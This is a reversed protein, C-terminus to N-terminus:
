RDDYLDSLKDDIWRQEGISVEQEIAVMTQTGQSLDLHLRKCIDVARSLPSDNQPRHIAQVDKSMATLQYVLANCGKRWDDGIDEIIDDYVAAAKEQRIETVREVCDLWSQFTETLRTYKGADGVLLSLEQLL